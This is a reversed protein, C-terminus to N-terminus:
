SAAGLRTGALQARLAGIQRQRAQVPSSLDNYGGSKGRTAASATLLIGTAPM